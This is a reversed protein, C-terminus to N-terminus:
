SVTIGERAFVRAGAPRAKLADYRAALSIPVSLKMRDVAWFLVYFLAADAMSATAGSPPLADLSAAVHDLGAEVIELGQAKVADHTTADPSFREPRVIRTFGHMHLTSVVYEVLEMERLDADTPTGASAADQTLYRAIVPFETLVFGDDRQLAPVKSKPNIAVYWPQRHEGQRVDVKCADFPVGRDELLFHIGISCAGPSYYLKM